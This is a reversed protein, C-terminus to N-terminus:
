ISEEAVANANDNLRGAGARRVYVCM